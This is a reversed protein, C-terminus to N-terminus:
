YFGPLVATQSDAQRHSIRWAGEELRFVMVARLEQSMHTTRGPVRYRIIEKQVVYALDRGVVRAIEQHERRGEAYQTAVWELRRSVNSWGKEIAGGLGGTLTVDDRHSWLAKFAEPRGRVLEVQASEVQALAEAFTVEHATRDRGSQPGAGSLTASVAALALAACMLMTGVISTVNM